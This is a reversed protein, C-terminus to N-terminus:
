SYIDKLTNLIIKEVFSFMMQDPLNISVFFQKGFKSALKQGLQKSTEEIEKTLITTSSTSLTNGNFTPPPMAVALNGLVENGDVGAWIFASEEFTTVQLHLLQTQFLHSSSYVKFRPASPESPM